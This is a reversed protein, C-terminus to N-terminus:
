INQIIIECEGQHHAEIVPTVTVEVSNFEKRPGWQERRVGPVEVIEDTIEVTELLVREPPLEFARESNPAITWDNEETSLGFADGETHVSVKPPTYDSDLYYFYMPRRRKSLQKPLLRSSSGTLTDTPPNTIEAGSVVPSGSRFPDVHEPPAESTVVARDYQDIYFPHIGEKHVVRYSAEQDVEFRIGAELVPVSVIDDTFEPKPLTPIAGGAGISKM